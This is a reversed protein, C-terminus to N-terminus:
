PVRHTSIVGELDLKKVSIQDHRLCKEGSQWFVGSTQSWAHGVRSVYIYIYLTKSLQKSVQPVRTDASFRGLFFKPERGHIFVFYFFHGISTMSRSTPWGPATRLVSVGYTSKQALFSLQSLPKRHKRHQEQDSGPVTRHVQLMCLAWFCDSGTSRFKPYADQALHIWSLFLDGEAGVMGRRAPELLNYTSCDEELFSVSFSFSFSFCFSLLSPLPLRLRVVIFEFLSAFYDM